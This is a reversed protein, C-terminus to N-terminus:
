FYKKAKSNFDCDNKLDEAFRDYRSLNEHRKQFEERDIEKSLFSRVLNRSEMEKDITVRKEICRDYRISSFNRKGIDEKFKSGIYGALFFCVTGIILFIARVMIVPFKDLQVLSFCLAYCFGGVGSLMCVKPLVGDRTIYDRETYVSDKQEERLKTVFHNSRLLSKKYEEYQSEYDDM